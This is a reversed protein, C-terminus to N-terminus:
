WPMEKTRAVQMTEEDFHAPVDDGSYRTLEAWQEKALAAAEEPSNAEPFVTTTRTIEVTVAYTKM